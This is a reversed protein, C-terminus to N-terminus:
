ECCSINFDYFGLEKLYIIADHADNWTDFQDHCSFGDEDRYDLYYM